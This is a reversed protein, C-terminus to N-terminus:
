CCTEQSFLTHKLKVCYCLMLMIPELIIRNICTSDAKSEFGNINVCYFNCTGSLKNLIMEKRKIYVNCLKERKTRLSKSIPNNEVVDSDSAVCTTGPKNSPHVAPASLGPREYIAFFSFHTPVSNRCYRENCQFCKENERFIIQVSM